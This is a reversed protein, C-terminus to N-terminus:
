FYSLIHDNIRRSSALMDICKSCRGNGRYIQYTTLPHQLHYWQFYLHGDQLSPVAMELYGALLSQPGKRELKTYYIDFFYSEFCQVTGKIRCLSIVSIVTQMEFTRMLKNQNSTSIINPNDETPHFSSKAIDM